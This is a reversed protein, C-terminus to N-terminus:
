RSSTLPLTLTFTTGRGPKSAVRIDGGHQRMIGHVVALGWGASKGFDRTTFYPDFVREAIHADMGKGTDSVSLFANAGEIGSRVTFTGGGAMAQGANAALNALVTAIQGPDVKVPLPADALSMAIDVSPGLLSAFVRASQAVLDNLDADEASLTQLAATALLREVIEAARSASSFIADASKRLQGASEARSMIVQAHALIAMLPNNLDHALGSALFGISELRGSRIKEGDMARLQVLARANAMALGCVGIVTQALQIYRELQGPFQVEGVRIAGLLDGDHRIGALFGDRGATSAVGRGRDAVFRLLEEMASKGIPGSATVFAKPTDNTVTVCGMSRPAFLMSFIEAIAAVAEEETAPRAMRDLLDLATAYDAARLNAANLRWSEAVNSLRLRITDLGIPVSRAPLGIFAAFADLEPRLDSAPTSSETDLLLVSEASEHFFDHATPADFGQALLHERWRRLWGPTVIYDGSEIWHQILPAPALLEFCNDLRTTSIELGRDLCPGCIFVVNGGTIEPLAPTSPVAMTGPKAGRACACPFTTIEVDAWRETEVVLRAEGAFTECVAITLKESVLDSGNSRISV